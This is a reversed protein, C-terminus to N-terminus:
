GARLRRQLAAVRLALAPDTAMRERLRAVAKSVGATGCGGMADAIERLPHGGALRCLTMAVARPEADPHGRGDRHLRAFPVGYEQRVAELIEEIRPRRLVRRAPPVEDRAQMTALRERFDDDALIPAARREAYFARVRADLGADTYHRYALAPNSAGLRSRVTAVELWRPRIRAGIYSRYSSWRYAEPRGVVGAEVPVRHIYRSVQLLYADPDVLVARYRGRFIPGDGGHARNFRQTYVGSLHRMVRSLNGGPTRLLLHYGSPMLCYGHCEVDFMSVVEALLALFRAGDSPAPFAMLDRLGRNMVHYWAGPYEIRLPRSM